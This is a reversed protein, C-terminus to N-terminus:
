KKHINNGNTLDDENILKNSTILLNMSNSNGPLQTKVFFGIGKLGKISKIKCRSEKFQQSVAKKEESEPCCLGM